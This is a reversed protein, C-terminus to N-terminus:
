KGWRKGLLEMVVAMVTWMRNEAETFVLSKSSYFVEDTVEEPKRPLCHLFVANPDARAMMAANVQYGAFDVKRKKAEDEQGMSVWTDTVIVNAGAVVEMPDSTVLFTVGQKNALDQCMAVVSADPKYAPPTSIKVNCGQKICGIALDHM